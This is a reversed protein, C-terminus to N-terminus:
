TWFRGSGCSRPTSVRCAARCRTRSASRRAWRWARCACGSPGCPHAPGAGAGRQDDRADAAPSARQRVHEIRRVVLARLAGGVDQVDRQPGRASRPSSRIGSARGGGLRERRRGGRIGPFPDARISSRVIARMFRVCRERDRRNRHLWRRVAPGNHRRWSEVAFALHTTWLTFPELLRM